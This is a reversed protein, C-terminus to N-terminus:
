SVAVEPEPVPASTTSKAYTKGGTVMQRLIINQVDSQSLPHQPMPSSISQWVKEPSIECLQPFLNGLVNVLHKCIKGQEPEMDIFAEDPTEGPSTTKKARTKKGSLEKQTEARDFIDETYDILAQIGVGDTDTKILGSQIKKYFDECDCHVRVQANQPRIGGIIRIGEEKGKERLDSTLKGVLITPYHVRESTWLTEGSKKSVYSETTITKWVLSFRARDGSNLLVSGLFIDKMQQSGRSGGIFRGAGSLLSQALSSEMLGILPVGNSSVDEMFFHKFTNRVSEMRNRRITRETPNEKWELMPLSTTCDFNISTIIHSIPPFIENLITYFEM